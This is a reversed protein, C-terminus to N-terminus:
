AMYVPWSHSAAAATLLSTASTTNQGITGIYYKCVGHTKPTKTNHL